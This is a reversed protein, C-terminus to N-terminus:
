LGEKKECSQIIIKICFLVCPCLQYLLFCVSMYM